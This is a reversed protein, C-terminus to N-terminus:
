KFHAYVIQGFALLFYHMFKKGGHCRLISLTFSTLWRFYYNHFFDFIYDSFITIIITISFYPTNVFKKNPIKNLIGKLVKM